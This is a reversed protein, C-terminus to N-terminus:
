SLRHVTFSRDPQTRLRLGRHRRVVRPDLGVAYFSPPGDHNSSHLRALERRTAGLSRISNLGADAIRPTAQTRSKGGRAALDVCVFILCRAILTGCRRLAPVRSSARSGVSLRLHLEARQGLWMETPTSEIPQFGALETPRDLGDDHGPRTRSTRRARARVRADAHAVRGRTKGLPLSLMSYQM